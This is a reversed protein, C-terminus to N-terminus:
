SAGSSTFSGDFFDREEGAAEEILARAEDLLATAKALAERRQKNM